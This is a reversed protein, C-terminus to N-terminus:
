FGALDSDKIHYPEWKTTRPNGRWLKIPGEIDGYDGDFFIAAERQRRLKLGESYENAATYSMMPWMKELLEVEGYNILHAVAPLYRNGSQYHMIELADSQHQSLEIKILSDIRERRPKLDERLVEFAKSVTRPQLLDADPGNHGFFISNHAGDKYPVLVCAEVQAM